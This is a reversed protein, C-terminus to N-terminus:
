EKTMFPLDFALKVLDSQIVNNSTDTDEDKIYSNRLKNSGIAPTLYQFLEMYKPNRLINYTHIGQVTRVEEGEKVIGKKYDDLTANPMTSYKFQRRNYQEERISWHKDVTELNSFYPAFEEEIESDFNFKALKALHKALYKKAPKRVILYIMYAVFCIFFPLGPGSQTIIEGINLTM